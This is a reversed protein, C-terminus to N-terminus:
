EHTPTTSVGTRGFRSCISRLHDIQAPLVDPDTLTPVDQRLRDLLAVTVAYWTAALPGAMSVKHPGEVQLFADAVADAVLQPVDAAFVILDAHDTAAASGRWAAVAAPDVLARGGRGRRGRAAVPAGAAIWRRLTPVSVELADAAAPIPVAAM